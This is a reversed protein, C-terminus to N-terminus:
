LAVDTVTKALYHEVEQSDNVNIAGSKIANTVQATADILIIKVDIKYASIYSPNGINTLYQGKVLVGTPLISSTYNAKWTGSNGINIYTDQFASLTWGNQSFTNDRLYVLVAGGNVVRHYNTPLFSKSGIYTYQKTAPDYVKSSDSSALPLVQATYIYSWANVSGPKNTSDNQSEKPDALPSRECATLLTFPLSLFFLTTILSDTFQRVSKTFTNM